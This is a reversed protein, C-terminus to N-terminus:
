GRLACRSPSLPIPTDYAWTLTEDPAGAAGRFLADSSLWEESSSAGSGGNGGAMPTTPPQLRARSGSSVGAKLTGSRGRGPPAATRRWITALATDDANGVVMWQGDATIAVAAQAAAANAPPMGSGAPGRLTSSAAAPAPLAGLPLHGRRVLAVAAAAMDQIVDDFQTVHTMYVLTIVHM